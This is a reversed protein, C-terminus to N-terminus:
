MCKAQQMKSAPGHRLVLDGEQGVEQVSSAVPVTGAHFLLKVLLWALM